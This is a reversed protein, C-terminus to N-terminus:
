HYGSSKQGHPLFLKNPNKTLWSKLEQTFSYLICFVAVVDMIKGIHM